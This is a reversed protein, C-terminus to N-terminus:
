SLIVTRRIKDKDYIIKINKYCTFKGSACTVTYNVYDVTTIPTTGSDIYNATASIMNSGNERQYPKSIITVTEFFTSPLGVDDNKPVRYGLFNIIDTALTKFDSKCMYQNSIYKLSPVGNIEATEKIQGATYEDSGPVKNRYYLTLPEKPGM